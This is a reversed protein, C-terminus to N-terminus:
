LITICNSFMYAYISNYDSGEIHSYPFPYRAKCFDVVVASILKGILATSLEM